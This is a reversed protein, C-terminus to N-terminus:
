NLGLAVMAEPAFCCGLKRPLKAINKAHLKPPAPAALIKFSTHHIGM